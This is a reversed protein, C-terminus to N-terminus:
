PVAQLITVAQKDLAAKRERMTQLVSYPLDVEGLRGKPGNEHSHFDSGGTILLGYERALAEYEKRAHAPQQSHHVEIGNLGAKVLTEWSKRTRPGGFHPHAVVALGGARRIMQVCDVPTMAAKAVYAPRNEKLYKHFAEDFSSVYGAEVLARAIHPRGVAKGNAHAEIKRTDLKM